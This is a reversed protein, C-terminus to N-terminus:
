GQARAAEEAELEKLALAYQEKWVPLQGSYFHKVHSPTTSDSIAEEAEQIEAAMAAVRNSKSAQYTMFGLM